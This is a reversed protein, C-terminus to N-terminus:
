GLLDAIRDTTEETKSQLLPEFKLRDMDHGSLVWAAALAPCTSIHVRCSSQDGYQLSAQFKGGGVRTLVLTRLEGAEAAETVLTNLDFLM